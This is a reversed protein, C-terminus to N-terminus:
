CVSACVSQYQHAICTPHLSSTLPWYSGSYPAPYEVQYMSELPCKTKWGWILSSSTQSWKFDHINVESVMDYIPTYLIWYVVFVHLSFPLYISIEESNLLLEASQLVHGWDNLHDFMEKGQDKDLDFGKYWQLCSFLQSGIVWSSFTQSAAFWDTIQTSDRLQWPCSKYIQTTPNKAPILLELLSTKM